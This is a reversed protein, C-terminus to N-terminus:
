SDSVVSLSWKWKENEHMPSPFPLGSWHEQRSFGLSPPAQHAAMQPTACLWVCSFHSLLLLMLTLSVSIVPACKHGMHYLDYTIKQDKAFGTLLHITTWDGLRTWSKTVRHIAACWAERDRVMEWLKGLNMDMADTIGGLWRMRQYERKRRSETKGMMSSKELSDAKWM